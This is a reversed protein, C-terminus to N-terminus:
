QETLIEDDPLIYKVLIHMNAKFAGVGLGWEWPLLAPPYMDRTISDPRTGLQLGTYYLIAGMFTVGAM